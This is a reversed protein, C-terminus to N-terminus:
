NVTPGLAFTENDTLLPDILIQSGLDLKTGTM